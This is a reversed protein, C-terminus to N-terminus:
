SRQSLWNVIQSTTKGELESPTSGFEEAAIQMAENMDVNRAQSIANVFAKDLPATSFAFIEIGTPKYDFVGRMTGMKIFSRGKKPGINSMKAIERENFGSAALGEDDDKQGLSIFVESSNLIAQGADYEGKLLDNISQSVFLCVGFLKRSVKAIFKVAHSGEPNDLFSWIEDAIFLTMQNEKINKRMASIVLRNIIVISIKKMLDDGIAAIDFSTLPNTIDITKRTNFLIGYKGITYFRLKNAMEEARSKMEPNGDFEKLVEILDSINPMELGNELSKYCSVIAEQIVAKDTTDLDKKNVMAEIALQINELSDGNYDLGAGEDDNGQTDYFESPMDFPNLPYKADGGFEIYEGGLIQNIQKYSDGPELTFIKAGSDLGLPTGAAKADSYNPDWGRVNTIIKSTLFSKGYGTPALILCHSASLYKPEYTNFRIYQGDETTFLSNGAGTGTWRGYFPLFYNMQYTFLYSRRHLSAWHGPLYSLYGDLHHFDDDLLIIEDGMRSITNIADKVIKKLTAPDDSEFVFNISCLFVEPNLAVIEQLAGEYEQIKAESEYKSQNNQSDRVMNINRKLYNKVKEYKTRYFNVQYRYPYGLSDLTSILSFPDMKSPLRYVNLSQYYRNGVNLHKMTSNFSKNVLQERWTYRNLVDTDSKELNPDVTVIRSEHGNIIRQLYQDLEKKSLKHPKFGALNQTLSKEFLELEDLKAQFASQITKKKPFLKDFFGSTEQKPNKLLQSYDKNTNSTMTVIVYRELSTKKSAKLQKEQASKFYGYIGEDKYNKLYDDDVPNTEKNKIQIVQCVADEPMLKLFNMVPDNVQAIEGPSYFLLDGPSTIRYVASVDLDCSVIFGKDDIYDWINIHKVINKM